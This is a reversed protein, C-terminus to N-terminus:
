QINKMEPFNDLSLFNLLILTNCIQHPLGSYTGETNEITM